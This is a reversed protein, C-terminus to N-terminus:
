WFFKSVGSLAVPGGPIVGVLDVEEKEEKEQGSVELSELQKGSYAKVPAGKQVEGKLLSSHVNNVKSLDDRPANSYVEGGEKPAWVVQYEIPSWLDQIKHRGKHSQERLYVLQGELLPVDQVQQDHRVKRRQAAIQLREQAGEFAVQLRAQHEWIWEHVSSAVPEQVRGLLFDVPLRPEQGLMLFYPSEGTAQHPTTNYYFLIQPMCPVWDRKRSVLLTCLLNHLTWKFRESQGNGAPHYPTTRSKGVRYLDCLQHILISEFNCGHNWHLRGSIGFKYFWENVLAQAMTEAQQDQTPVALTYKSFVDTMVLVNEVGSRSPELVTFDIVLIKNPRSALLHGM